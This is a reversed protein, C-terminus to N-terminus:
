ARLEAAGDFEPDLLADLLSREATTLPRVESAVAAM